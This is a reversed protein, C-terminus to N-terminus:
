KREEVFKVTRGNKTIFSIFDGSTYGKWRVAKAIKEMTDAPVKIIVPRIVKM